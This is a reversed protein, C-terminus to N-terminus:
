YGILMKTEEDLTRCEIGVAGQGGAPLSLSVSLFQKIRAQM